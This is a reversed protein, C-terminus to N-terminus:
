AEPAEMTQPRASRGKQADQRCEHAMVRLMKAAPTTFYGLREM